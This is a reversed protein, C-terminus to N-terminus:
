PRFLRFAQVGEFLYEWTCARKTQTPGTAPIATGSSTLEFPSCSDNNTPLTPNPTSSVSFSSLQDSIQQLLFVTTAGSDPSLQKYSEIIFVAETAAFLGTFILIGESDGKRNKGSTDSSKSAKYFTARYMRTGVIFKFLPSRSRNSSSSPLFSSRPITLQPTPPYSGSIQNPQRFLPDAVEDYWM